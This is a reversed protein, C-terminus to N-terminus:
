ITYAFFRTDYVTIALAVVIFDYAKLYVRVKIVYMLWISGSIAIKSCRFKAFWINIMGLNFMFQLCCM